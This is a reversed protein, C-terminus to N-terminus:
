SMTEIAELVHNSVTSIFKSDVSTPLTEIDPFQGIKINLITLKHSILLRSQQTLHNMEKRIEIETQKADEILNHNIQSRMIELLGFAVTNTAKLTILEYMINNLKETKHKSNLTSLIKKAKLLTKKAINIYGHAAQGDALQRLMNAQMQPNTIKDIIAQSDKFLLNEIQRRAITCLAVNKFSPLNIEETKQRAISFSEKGEKTFTNQIEIHAITTLVDVVKQKEVSATSSNQYSFLFHTQQQEGATALQKAKSLTDKAEKTRNNSIHRLAQQCLLAISKPLHSIENISQGRQQPIEQKVSLTQQQTKARQPLLTTKQSVATNKGWGLQCTCKEIIRPYSSQNRALWHIAGLFPSPSVPINLLRKPDIAVYIQQALNRKYDQLSKLSRIKLSGQSNSNNQNAFIMNKREEKCYSQVFNHIDVSRPLNRRELSDIVRNMLTTNTAALRLASQLSLKNVICWLIEPPLTDLTITISM